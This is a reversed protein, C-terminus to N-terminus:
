VEKMYTVQIPTYGKRTWIKILAPDYVTLFEFEKVKLSKAFTMLMDLMKDMLKGGRYFPEIYLNDCTGILKSTGHDYYHLFCSAFGVVANGEVAVVVSSNDKKIMALINILFREQEVKDAVKGPVKIEDMMKAWLSTITYADWVTAIRVEM